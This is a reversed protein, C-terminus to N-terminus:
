GRGKVCVCALQGCNVTDHRFSSSAFEVDDSAHGRVARGRPGDPEEFDARPLPAARGVRRGAKDARGRPHGSAVSINALGYLQFHEAPLGM